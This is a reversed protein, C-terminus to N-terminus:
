ISLLFSLIVPKRSFFGEFGVLLSDSSGESCLATLADLRIYDLVAGQACGLSSLAMEQLTTGLGSETRHVGLPEGGGGSGLTWMSHTLPLM